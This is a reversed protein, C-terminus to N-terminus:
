HYDNTTQTVLQILMFCNLSDAGVGYALVLMAQHRGGVRDLM